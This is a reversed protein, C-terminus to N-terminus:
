MQRDTMLDAASHDVHTTDQCQKLLLSKRFVAESSTARSGPAVEVKEIGLIFSKTNQEGKKEEGERASCLSIWKPWKGLSRFLTTYPFLTM